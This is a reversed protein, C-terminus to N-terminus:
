STKELFAVRIGLEFGEDTKEAHDLATMGTGKKRKKSSRADLWQGSPNFILKNQTV